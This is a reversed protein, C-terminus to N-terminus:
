LLNHKYDNYIYNFKIKEKVVIEFPVLFIHYKYCNFNYTKVTLFQWM